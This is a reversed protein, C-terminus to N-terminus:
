RLLLIVLSVLAIVMADPLLLCASASLIPRQDMILLLRYRTDTGADANSHPTALIFSIYRWCRVAHNNPMSSSRGRCAFTSLADRTDM